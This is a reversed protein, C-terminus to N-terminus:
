SDRTKALEINSWPCGWITRSRSACLLDTDRRKRHVSSPPHRKRPQKNVGSLFALGEMKSLEETCISNVGSCSQLERVRNCSKIPNVTRHPPSSKVVCHPLELNCSSIAPSSEAGSLGHAGHASQLKWTTRKSLSESLPSFNAAPGIHGGAEERGGHVRGDM